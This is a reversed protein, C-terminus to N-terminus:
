RIIEPDDIESLAEALADTMTTVGAHEFTLYRNSFQSSSSSHTTPYTRINLSKLGTSLITPLQM